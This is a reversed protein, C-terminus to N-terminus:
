GVLAKERLLTLAEGPTQGAPIESAPLALRSALTLFDRLQEASFPANVLVRKGEFLFREAATLCEAHTAETWAPSDLDAGFPSRTPEEALGALTKRALDAEILCFDAQRALDRALSPSGGVLVLCPRRGPEELEGLALLWHARARCRAARHEEEPVEPEVLEFGEVKARVAARYAVYFPLLARGEEDGTAAFYAQAFTTALDRRGHFTLDMVLFAIDAVPDQCRFRENFEICDILVLDGPPQRGPFHYVHDLRLDGHVERPVGRAAREEILPRLQALTAETRDRLRALVAPSITVGVQPTAQEFNERANRAVETFSAFRSIREGGPCGAHFSAIRGALTTMLEPDVEGRLLRAQLSAADPLREMKVLWEVAPGPGEVRLGAPTRVVPVVGRYVTPALRRNLRVEEDCFHRRKALTTFDLFGLDVPKKLKYAFSGALFVVSIHTQRVEVREVLPPYVAPDSLDAILEDLTM